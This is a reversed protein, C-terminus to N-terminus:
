KEYVSKEPLIAEFSEIIRASVEDFGETVGDNLIIVSKKRNAIVDEAVAVTDLNVDLYISDRVTNFAHFNGEMLQWYRMLYQNVNVEGRFRDRCTRDLAEENERWVKEFTSKLFSNPLHPDLIGGFRPWPTLLLTRLLYKGYKLNYWKWFDRRMVQRKDFHRNICSLTALINHAIGDPNLMNLAAIDCPLGGRFYHEPSRHDIIFFDDNFYVFEEALGEIRHLNLEITTSNFTPLYQAPIYDSHKVLNLKPADPNIWEPYHGCTVFHIRDVWPAFNEVGRFWYKLNNWDRFRVERTDGRDSLAYKQYEARWEPDSGDVWIIVFDM